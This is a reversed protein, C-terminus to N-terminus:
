PPPHADYYKLRAQMSSSPWALYPHPATLRYELVSM